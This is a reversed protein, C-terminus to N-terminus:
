ALRDAAIILAAAHGLRSTSLKIATRQVGADAAAISKSIPLPEDHIVNIPCDPDPQKYNLTYPIEGANLGLISVALEVAGGGAGLHGFFSKPATVPVSGLISHIAQAEYRDDAITSLGHANVHGIDNPELGARRLSEVLVQRVASGTLGPPALASNVRLPEHASACSLVHALITAGRRQAHQLSELVFAAAGEGNVLGDRGADFPRSACAPRDNRHSLDADGRFVGVTPNLRAGVGGAIMVDAADRQIVRVAEAIAALGGVDSHGITNCPGRADHAIAVQCAIMNPLNRLMWLPFIESMAADAWRSFDFKKSLTKTDHPEHKNGSGPAVSAPQDSALLCYRYASELEDLDCYIMDAGFVVGVRDPDVAGPSLQAQSMAFDAAAFGFQIDRSM